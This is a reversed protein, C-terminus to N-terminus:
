HGILKQGFWTGLFAAVAASVGTAWYPAGFAQALWVSLRAVLGGVLAPILNKKM